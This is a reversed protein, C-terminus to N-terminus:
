LVANSSILSNWYFCVNSFKAPGKKWLRVSRTKKLAEALFVFFLFEDCLVRAIPHADAVMAREEAQPGGMGTGSSHTCQCLWPCCGRSSAGHFDLPPPAHRWREDYSQRADHGEQETLQQM